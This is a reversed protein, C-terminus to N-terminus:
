EIEAREYQLEVKGNEVKVIKSIVPYISSKYKKPIYDDGRRIGQIMLKTGKTLWSKEIIKKKKKLFNVILKILYIM